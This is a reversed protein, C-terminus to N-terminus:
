PRLKMRRARGPKAVRQAAETSAGVVRAAGNVCRVDHGAAAQRAASASLARAATEYFSAGAQTLQLERQSRKFLSLGINEELAKIQQSIASPTINLQMAAHKFSRLQASKVFAPLYQLPPAKRYPKM